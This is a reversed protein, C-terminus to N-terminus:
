TTGLLTSAFRRYVWASCAAGLAIAFLVWLAEVVSLCVLISDGIGYGLLIAISVGKFVAYVILIVFMPLGTLLYTLAIKWVHGRTDRWAARWLVRGGTAVHCLLVSLRISVLLGIVFLPLLVASWALDTGHDALFGQDTSRGLSLMLVLANFGAGTAVVFLLWLLLSLGIFKWFPKNFFVASRAADAGLVTYRQVQMSLGAFACLQTLSLIGTLLYITWTGYAAIAMVEPSSVFLTLANQVYSAMLLLIFIIFVVLPRCRLASAADKWAGTFCRGITISEM